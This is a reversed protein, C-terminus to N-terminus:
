GSRPVFSLARESNWGMLFGSVAAKGLFDDEQSAGSSQVPQCPYNFHTLLTAPARFPRATYRPNFYALQTGGLMLGTRRGCDAPIATSLSPLLNPPNKNEGGGVHPEGDGFAPDIRRLRPPFSHCWVPVPAKPRPAPQPFVHSILFPSRIHSCPKISAQTEGKEMCRAFFLPVFFPIHLHFFWPGFPNHM